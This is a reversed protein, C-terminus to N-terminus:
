AKKAAVDKDLVTLHHWDMQTLCVDLLNLFWKQDTAMGDLKCFFNYDPNHYQKYLEVIQRTGSPIKKKCKVLRHKKARAFKSTKDSVFASSLRVDSTCISNSWLNHDKPIIAWSRPTTFEYVTMSFAWACLFITQALLANYDCLVLDAAAVLKLLLTRTVLLKSDKCKAATKKWMIAIFNKNQHQSKEWSNKGCSKLHVLTGRGYQMCLEEHEFNWHFHKEIQKCVEKAEKDTRFILWPM